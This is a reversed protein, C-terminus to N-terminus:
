IGTLFLVYFLIQILNKSFVQFAQWKTQKNLEDGIFTAPIEMFDYHELGLIKYAKQKIVTLEYDKQTSPPLHGSVTLVKVINNHDILKKILGVGLTEDPHPVLM